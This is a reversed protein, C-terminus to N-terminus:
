SPAFIHEDITRFPTSRGQLPIGTDDQGVLKGRPVSLYSIRQVAYPIDINMVCHCSSVEERQGPQFHQLGRTRVKSSNREMGGHVVPLCLV